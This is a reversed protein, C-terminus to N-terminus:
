KEGKFIDKGDKPSRPEPVKVSEGGAITVLAKFDKEDFEAPIRRSQGDALIVFVGPSVPDKRDGNGRFGPPINFLRPLRKDAAFPIDAPKTWVVSALPDDRFVVAITNDVGDRVQGKSVADKGPFLTGPGSFVQMGTKFGNQITWNQATFDVRFPRPMREILKKNNLSDWAEDLKFQKYIDEFTRKEGNPPGDKIAPPRAVDSFIMGERENPLDGQRQEMYPLILVRWSLLPKGDKDCIAAPPFSGKDKHYAELAASIRSLQDRIHYPIEERDGSYGHSSYYSSSGRFSLGAFAMITMFDVNAPFFETLNLSTRLTGDKSEVSLGKLTADVYKLAAKGVTPAFLAPMDLISMVPRKTASDEDKQLEAIGKAIVDHGMKRLEEVAKAGAAAQEPSAFEVNLSLRSDQKLDLAAWASTAKLLAAIPEPASKLIEPTALATTNVGLTAAHKGAERAFVGALASPAGRGKERQEILRVISDEAGVVLVTPAVLLVGAWHTEDFLYDTGSHAKTRAELGMGKILEVRDIPQKTTIVWLMSEGVPRGEPLASRINTSPMIITLSEFQLPNPAFKGDFAKIGDAGLSGLMKRYFAAGHSEWVDAIRVHFFGITEPTLLSEVASPEAARSTPALASLAIVGLALSLHRLKSLTIM